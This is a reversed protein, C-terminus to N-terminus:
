QCNYIVLPYPYTENHFRMMPRCNTMLYEEDLKPFLGEQMVVVEPQYRELTYRTSMEFTGGNQLSNAIDPHLLGAFDVMRRQAFFGIIGTELCGISINEPTNDKLWEGAQKYIILRNDTQKALGQLSYLQTLLLFALTTTTVIRVIGSVNWKEVNRVLRLQGLATLGLGVLIVFGPVLPAYYWFYRSVGLLSYSIFYILTWSVLLLWPRAKVWAYAMGGLALALELWYQWQKFWALITLLGPAFSEANLMGAQRQKALLTVPIPSGFYSWAFVVWVLLPIAFFAVAKWPLPKRKVLLTHGALVLGILLGEPRTLAALVALLASSTTRGYAYCTLSGLCFVLYLPTESGLTNVLLPFTPYLLLGSWGVLPAKWAEALKWLFLGGAGLSLVGILNALGPLYIKGGTLWALGALLMTFLPTTTSLIREGANYVFGQGNALNAAYRYTIFPDDYAWDSFKILIMVSTLLACAIALGTKHRFVRAIFM